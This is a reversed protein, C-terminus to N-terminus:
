PTWEKTLKEKCKPHNDMEIWEEFTEHSPLVPCRGNHHNPRNQKCGYERQQPDSNIWKCCSHSTRIDLQTSDVALIKLVLLNMYQFYCFGSKDFGRATMLLCGSTPIKLNFQLKKKKKPYSKHKNHINLNHAISLPHLLILNHLTM